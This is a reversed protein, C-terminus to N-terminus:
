KVRTLNRFARIVATAIHPEIPKGAIKSAAEAIAKTTKSTMRLPIQTITAEPDASAEARSVFKGSKASRSIKRLATM